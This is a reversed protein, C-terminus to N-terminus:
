IHSWCKRRKIMSIMSRSVGYEPAILHHMRADGRISLVQAMTLKAMGHQEGKAIEGLRERDNFNDRRTGWSLNSAANNRKDGDGHLVEVCGDPRDAFATAVLRHVYHNTKKRAKSLKVVWYGGSHPFPAIPQPALPRTGGQGNPVRRALSRVEGM